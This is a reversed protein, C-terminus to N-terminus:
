KLNKNLFLDFITFRFHVLFFNSNTFLIASGFAGALIENGENNKEEETDSVYAISISFFVLKFVSFFTFVKLRLKGKGIWKIRSSACFWAM